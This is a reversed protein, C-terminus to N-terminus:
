QYNTSFCVFVMENIQEIALGFNTAQFGTNLYTQLLAHHNIGQNFDYGSVKINSYSRISTLDINYDSNVQSNDLPNLKTRRLVAEAAIEPVSDM